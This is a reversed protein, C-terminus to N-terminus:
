SEAAKECTQYQWQVEFRIEARGSARIQINDTLFHSITHILTYSSKICGFM